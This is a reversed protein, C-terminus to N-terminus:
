PELGERNNLDVPAKTSPQDEKYLELVEGRVVERHLRDTFWAVEVMEPVGGVKVETVTLAPGGGRLRVVDGIKFNM